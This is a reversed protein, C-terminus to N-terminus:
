SPITPVVDRLIDVILNAKVDRLILSRGVLRYELEPPLNPLKRLLGAPFTALPISTPYVTNVDVKMTKPLENIIAKRDAAARSAFDDQVIKIFYPQYEPAFVEGIQADARLTQIAQALAAERDAIEKPDDTRKLNPVKREAQNHIKLYAKIRNQFEVTAAGQANTGPQGDPAASAAPPPPPSGVPPVPTQGAPTVNAVPSVATNEERACGSVLVALSVALSACKVTTM